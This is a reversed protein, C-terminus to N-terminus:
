NIKYVLMAADRSHNSTKESYGTLRSFQEKTLKTNGSSHSVMLYNAKIRKLYDDWIKADRKVSGVGQLVENRFANKGYKKRLRADEIKIFIKESGVSNILGGIIEMAFDITTTAIYTYAKADRSWIAIGTNVGTDIGICYLYENLNIVKNKM